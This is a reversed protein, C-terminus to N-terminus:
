RRGCEIRRRRSTWRATAVKGSMRRGVQQDSLRRWALLGCLAFGIANALGHTAIMWELPLYPVRVVHGLAWDVALLMTGALVAASIALLWRTLRDPAKPRLEHWTVWAVLWMGATLVVAGVLEVADGVLFGVFVLGIGIPVCLAAVRARSDDAAATCVLAAILAAAFGAFHFHAVTRRL